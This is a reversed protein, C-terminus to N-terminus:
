AIQDPNMFEQKNFEFRMLSCVKQLIKTGNIYNWATRSLWVFGASLTIAKVIDLGFQRGLTILHCTTFALLEPKWSFQSSVSVLANCCKESRLDTIGHSRSVHLDGSISWLTDVLLVSVKECKWKWKENSQSSISGYLVHSNSIMFAQKTAM